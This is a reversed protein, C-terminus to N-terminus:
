TSGDRRDHCDSNVGNDVRMRQAYAKARNNGILAASMKAKTEASHKRGLRAESMRRKTDESHRKGTRSVVFKAIQEPTHARGKHFASIAACVEPSRKRGRLASATRAVADPDRKRGTQAASMRARHELSKKTGQLSASIKARSAPSLPTWKAALKARHEPTLKRGTNTARMKSVIGPVLMPSLDGGLSVNYGYARDCTNFAAIAKIELDAIYARDGVVLTRFVVRVGHKRIAEHVPFRPRSACELHDKRRATLSRGTIGFYRKGNPFEAVYLQYAM